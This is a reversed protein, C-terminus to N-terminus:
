GQACNASVTHEREAHVARQQFLTTFAVNDAYDMQQLLTVFAQRYDGM